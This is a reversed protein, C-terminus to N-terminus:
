RRVEAREAGAPFVDEIEMGRVSQFARLLATRFEEERETERARGAKPPADKRASRISLGGIRRM